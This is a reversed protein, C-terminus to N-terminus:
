SFYRLDLADALPLASTTYTLLRADLSALDLIISPSSIDIRSSSIAAPWNSNNPDGQKMGQCAHTQFVSMLCSLAQLEDRPVVGPLEVLPGHSSM